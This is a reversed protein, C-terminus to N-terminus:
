YANDICCRQWWWRNPRASLPRRGGWGHMLCVVPGDGWRQGAIRAGHLRVELRHGAPLGGRASSRPVTFWLRAALRAGAAPSIRELVGFLARAFM